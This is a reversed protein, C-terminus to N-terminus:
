KRRAATEPNKQEGNVSVGGTERKVHCFVRKNGWNKKKRVAMKNSWAKVRKGGKQPRASEKKRNAGSMRTKNNRTKVVHAIKSDPECGLQTGKEEIVPSLLKQVRERREIKLKSKGELSEPGMGSVVGEEDKVSPWPQTRLCAGKRTNSCRQDHRAEPSLLKKGERPMSLSRQDGKKRGKQVGGKTKYRSSKEERPGHDGIM